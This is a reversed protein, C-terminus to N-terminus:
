LHEENAVMRCRWTLEPVLVLCESGRLWIYFLWGGEEPAKCCTTNLDTSVMRAVGM